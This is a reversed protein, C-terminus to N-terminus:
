FCQQHIFSKFNSMKLKIQFIGVLLHLLPPQHSVISHLYIASFITSLYSEYELYFAILNDNLWNPQQLLGVDEGRLTTDGYTLVIKSMNRHFFLCVFLFVVEEEKDKKGEEQEKVRRESESKEL